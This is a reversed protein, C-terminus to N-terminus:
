KKPTFVVKDSTHWMPWDISSVKYSLVIEDDLTVTSNDPDIEYEFVFSPGQGAILAGPKHVVSAMEFSPSGAPTQLIANKSDFKLTLMKGEYESSWTSTILQTRTEGIRKDEGCSNLFLVLFAAVSFKSPIPKM